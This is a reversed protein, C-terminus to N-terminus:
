KQPPEYPELEAFFLSTRIQDKKDHSKVLETDKSCGFNQIRMTKCNLPKYEIFWQSNM